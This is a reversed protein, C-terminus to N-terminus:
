KIYGNYKALSEVPNYYDIELKFNEIQFSININLNKLMSVNM